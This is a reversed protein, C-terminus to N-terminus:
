FDMFFPLQTKAHYDINNCTVRIEEQTVPHNIYFPRVHSHEGRKILFPVNWKFVLDVDPFEERANIVGAVLKDAGCKEITDTPERERVAQLYTKETPITGERFYMERMKKAYLEIRPGLKTQIMDRNNYPNRNPTGMVFETGDDILKEMVNKGRKPQVYTATM